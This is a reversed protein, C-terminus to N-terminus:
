QATIVVYNIAGVQVDYLHKFGDKKKVRHVHYVPPPSTGAIEVGFAFEQIQDDHPKLRVLFLKALIQKGDINFDVTMDDRVDYGVNINAFEPPRLESVHIDGRQYLDRYFDARSYTPPKPFTLRPDSTVGWPNCSPCVELTDYPPYQENFVTQPSHCYSSDACSEYELSYFLWSGGLSLFPYRDCICGSRGHGKSQAAQENASSECDCTSQDANALQKNHPMPQDLENASDEGRASLPLVITALVAASVGFRFPIMTPGKANSM